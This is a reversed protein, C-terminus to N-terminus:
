FGIRKKCHICQLDSNVLMEPILAFTEDCKPCRIIPSDGGSVLLGRENAAEVVQEITRIRVSGTKQSSVEAKVISGGSCWTGVLIILGVVAIVGGGAVMDGVPMGPGAPSDMYPLMIGLGLSFLISGFITLLLRMGSPRGKRWGIAAFFLLIFTFIATLLLINMGPDSVLRFIDYQM